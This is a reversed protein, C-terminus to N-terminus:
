VYIKDYNNVKRRCIPCTANPSSLIRVCCQECTNAHCCPRFAFIGNKPNFCIICDEPNDVPASVVKLSANDLDEMPPASPVLSEQELIVYEQSSSEVMEQRLLKVIQHHGKQKALDFATKNEKNKLRLQCGHDLLLKVIEKQGYYSAVHLPTTSSGLFKCNIIAGSEILITALEVNGLKSAIHLPTYMDQDHFDSRAGNDLLLKVLELNGKKCAIHLPTSNEKDRANVNAGHQILLKAVELHGMGIAAHLPNKRGLWPTVNVHRRLLLKVVDLHGNQCAVYLPTSDNYALQVNAGHNLLLKTMDIQGEECALFLPTKTILSNVSAGHHLLFKAVEVKGFKAAWHLPTEMMHFSNVNAGNQILIKAMELNEYQLALNLPTQNLKGKSDVVVGNKILNEVITSYGNKSAFHILGEGQETKASMLNTHRCCWKLIDELMEGNTWVPQPQDNSKFDVEIGANKCCEELLLNQGKQSVFKAFRKKKWSDDKAILIDTYRVCWQLLDQLM